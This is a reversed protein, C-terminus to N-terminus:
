TNSLPDIVGNFSLPESSNFICSALWRYLITQHYDSERNESVHLNRLTLVSFLIIALSPVPATTYQNTCQDESISTQPELRTEAM